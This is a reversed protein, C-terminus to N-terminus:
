RGGFRPARRELVAAVGERADATGALAAQEQLEVAMAEAALEVLDRRLTRRTAALALPAGQAIQHALELAAAREQGPPVLREALGLAVAEEGAVRRGTLFLDAARGPGVLRPLTLTLGFGPHIGLTVFNAQFFAQSSVVRLDCALAIGFGAGIAAGHVAAVVPLPAAFIRRAQAYFAATRTRFAQADTPDPADESRFNAGACFSRGESALVVARASTAAEDLADALAALDPEGLLNHPPRNLTVIQVLGDQEVRVAPPSGGPASPGAPAPADPHESM